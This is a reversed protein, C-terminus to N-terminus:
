EDKGNRAARLFAAMKYRDKVGDTELSSSADVAYPRFRIIADYVNESDLGGALFFDRKIDKILTHNFTKGSGGGSDLMIYDAESSVAKIVDEKKEIAFAQIIRCNVEGKLRKIYERDENGHLQVMGIINREVLLKVNEIPENVFVGVPIISNKLRERLKEAKDFSVYRKSKESFVFGVFDPMLENVYDIDCIRTLGCLKVKTM